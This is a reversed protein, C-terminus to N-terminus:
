NLKCAVIFYLLLIIYGSQCVTGARIDNFEFKICDMICHGVQLRSHQM